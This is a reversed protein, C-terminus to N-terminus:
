AFISLSVDFVRADDFITKGLLYNFPVLMVQSYIFRCIFQNLSQCNVVYIMARFKVEDIFIDSPIGIGSKFDSAVACPGVM